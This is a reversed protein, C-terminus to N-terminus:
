HLVLLGGFVVPKSYLLAASIISSHIRRGSEVARASIDVTVSDEIKRVSGDLGTMCAINHFVGSCDDEALGSEMCIGAM